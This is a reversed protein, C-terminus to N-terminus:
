EYTSIINLLQAKLYSLSRNNVVIHDCFKMKKKDSLQHSNLLSFLKISGGKLKYRKLRSVKKTKLLIVTDFYNTLKNEVLLPIEFFLIKKNKNKKSFTIMEKRVEPHILRELKKLNSKKQLIIFKLKSKFNSNKNFGFKKALLSKFSDRLYLKKVVKDACFIPGRNKSIIKIATTKGSAISGTLGIKIM